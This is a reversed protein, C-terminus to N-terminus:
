ATRRLRAALLAFAAAAALLCLGWCLFFGAAWGAFLDAALSDAPLWDLRACALALAGPLVPACLAATRSLDAAHGGLEQRTRSVRYVMALSAAGLGLFLTVPWASARSYQLLINLLNSFPTRVAAGWLAALEAAVESPLAQGDGTLEDFPTPRAPRVLHFTEDTSRILERRVLAEDWGGTLADAPLGYAAAYTECSRQLANAVRAPYGARDMCHVLYQARWLTLGLAAFLTCLVVALCALAKFLGSLTQNRTM